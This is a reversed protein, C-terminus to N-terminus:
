IKQWRVGRTLGKAEYNLFIEDNEAKLDRQILSITIIILVPVCSITFNWSCIFICNNNGVLACSHGASAARSRRRGGLSNRSGWMVGDRWSWQDSARTQRARLPEDHCSQVALWFHSGFDTTLTNSCRRYACGKISNTPNQELLLVFIFFYLPQIKKLKLM